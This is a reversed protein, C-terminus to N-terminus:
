LRRIKLRALAIAYETSIKEDHDPEDWGDANKAALSHVGDGSAEM